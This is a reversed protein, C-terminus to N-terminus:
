CIEELNKRVKELVLCFTEIEKKSINKQMLKEIALINSQFLSLFFRGEDELNIEKSRSDVKSLSRKILHNKEMVNLIECVTSRRLEFFDEIDKQYVVKGVENNEDIFNLIIAQTNTIKNDFTKDFTRKMINAIKRLELAINKNEMFEGKTLDRVNYTKDSPIDIIKLIKKVFPHYDILITIM